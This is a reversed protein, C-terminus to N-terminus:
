HRADDQNDDHACPCYNACATGLKPLIRSVRAAHVHRGTMSLRMQAVWAGAGMGQARKGVFDTPGPIGYAPPAWMSAGTKLLDWQPAAGPTRLAWHCGPRKVIRHKGTAQFSVTAHNPLATKVSWEDHTAAAITNATTTAVPARIPSMGNQSAAATTATVANKAKLFPAWQNVHNLPRASTKSPCGQKQWLQRWKRRKETPLTPPAQRRSAQNNTQADIVNPTIRYAHM